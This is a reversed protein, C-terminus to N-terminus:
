HLEKEIEAFLEPTIHYEGLNKGTQDILISTPIGMVKYKRTVNKDADLLVPYNIGSKKVFSSVKVQSEGSDIGIVTFGDKKYKNQLKILDPIEERCFPCWTAWFNLLVVKHEKLIDKLNVDNGQLDKLSFFQAETLESNEAFSSLTNTHVVFLVVLATLFIGLVGRFFKM